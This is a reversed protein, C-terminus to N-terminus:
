GDPYRPRSPIPRCLRDTGRFWRENQLVLVEDELNDSVSGIVFMSRRSCSRPAALFSPSDHNGAIVVVHRCPSAAIRSLFRYYLEQALNSPSSTDFIDGAVLLADVKEQHITDALWSLFAAFEKYRKRGCLTRGIHWDSTHLIKMRFVSGEDCSRKKVEFCVFFVFRKM